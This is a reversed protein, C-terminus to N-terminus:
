VLSKHEGSDMAWAISCIEGSIGNLGTKHLAELSAAPAKEAWWKEISEQKKINGPPKLDMLCKAEADPSQDPITELDMYFDIM